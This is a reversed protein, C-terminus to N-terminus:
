IIPNLLQEKTGLYTDKRVVLMTPNNRCHTEKLGILHGCFILRNTDWGVSLMFNDICQALGNKNWMNM